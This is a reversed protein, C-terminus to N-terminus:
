YVLFTVLAADLREIIGYGRLIVRVSRQIRWCFGTGVDMFDLIALNRSLIGVMEVGVGEQVPSGM